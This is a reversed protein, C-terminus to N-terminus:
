GAATRHRSGYEVMLCRDQVVRIGAAALTSAVADNRIGSQFWVMRPHLAILDDAHRQLDFARRFMLTVDVPGPVARLDRVVRRGLIETVDPEYVPVPIIELGMAALRAPVFYAPRDRFRESRIGVVAVRRITRLEAQIAQPATLINQSPEM